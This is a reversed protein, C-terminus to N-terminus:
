RHAIKFEYVFLGPGDSTEIRTTSGATNFKLERARLGTPSSEPLQPTPKLGARDDVCAKSLRIDERCRPVMTRLVCEDEIPSVREPVTLARPSLMWYVVDFGPKGAVTYFLAGSPIVYISGKDIRLNEGSGPPPYLWETEGDSGRYYAYLYGSFSPRLQFRVSDGDSLVTRPDLAIWKGQELRELIIEFSTAANFVGSHTDQAQSTVGIGALCVLIPLVRRRNM